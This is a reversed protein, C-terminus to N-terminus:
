LQKEFKNVIKNVGQKFALLEDALASKEKKQIFYSSTMMYLYNTKAYKAVYAKTVALIDDETFTIQYYDKFLKKYNKMFAKMKKEIESISSRARSGSPLTVKPFIDLYKSSLDRLKKADDGIEKTDKEFHECLREVLEVGKPSLKYIHEEGQELYGHTYLPQYVFALVHRNNNNEDYQDLLGICEEYLAVLVFLQDISLKNKPDGLLALVNPNLTLSVQQLEQKEEVVPTQSVGTPLVSNTDSLTM